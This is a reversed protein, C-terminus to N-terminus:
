QEIELKGKIIDRRHKVWVYPVKEFTIIYPTEEFFSKFDTASFGKFREHGHCFAFKSSNSFLYRLAFVIFSFISITYQKDDIQITNCKTIKNFKEKGYIFCCEEDGLEELM